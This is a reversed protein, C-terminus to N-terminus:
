RAALQRVLLYSLTFLYGCLFRDVPLPDDGRRERGAGLAHMMWGAAIPTLLLNAIRLSTSPLLSHRFFPLSAGGCTAGAVVSIWRIRKEIIAAASGFISGLLLGLARILLELLPGLLVEIFIQVLIEVLIEM